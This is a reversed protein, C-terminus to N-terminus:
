KPAVVLNTIPSKGANAAVILFYWQRYQKEKQIVVCCSISDIKIKMGAILKSIRDFHDPLVPRRKAIRDEQILTYGYLHNLVDSWSPPTTTSPM